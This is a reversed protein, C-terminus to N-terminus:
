TEAAKLGKNHANEQAPCKAPLSACFTPRGTGSFQCAVDERRPRHINYVSTPPGAFNYIVGPNRRNLGKGISRYVACSSSGNAM